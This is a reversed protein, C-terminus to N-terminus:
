IVGYPRPGLVLVELADKESIAKKLLIKETLRNIKKVEERLKEEVSHFGEDLGFGIDSMRAKVSNIESRFDTRTEAAQEDMRESLALVAEKTEKIQLSLEKIAELILKDNANSMAFTIKCWRMPDFVARSKLSKELKDVADCGRM